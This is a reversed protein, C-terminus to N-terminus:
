DCPVYDPILPDRLWANACTRADYGTTVRVSDLLDSMGAAKGVFTQYFAGLAEDIAPRGVRQELARLFLAGRVYTLLTYADPDYPDCGEPWATDPSAARYRDAWEEYLEWVYATNAASSAAELARAALYSVTGESLVLDNWCRLRVGNGFWGHAAEHLQTLEDSMQDDSVHWFPHHEVGTYEFMTPWPAPVAGVKSGFAYPGLTTEYWDFGALLHATGALAAGESMPSEADHYVNVETGAATRGLVIAHLPREIWAPMYSPAESPITPAYLFDDTQGSVSLTFLVGDAPDSHCPFVNGCFNPWTFTYGDASVGDLLEHLQFTYEIVLTAPESSVPVRVDLQSGGDVFDLPVGAQEVSDITLDGIEFSAGESESPAITITATGRRAPTDIRLDTALIDRKLDVPVQAGAEGGMGTGTFAGGGGLNSGGV